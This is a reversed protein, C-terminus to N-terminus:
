LDRCARILGAGSSGVGQCDACISVATGAAFAIAGVHVRLTM